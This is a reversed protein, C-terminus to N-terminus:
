FTVSSDIASVPASFGTGFGIAISQGYRVLFAVYNYLQYRIQLTGSLVEPLVRTRPSGEFLWLDDWLAAIGLDNSGGSIAGAATAATPVNGDIYVDPGFPTSGALGEAPVGGGPYVGSVNFGIDARNVLPRGSTGSAGDLSTAFWFWRRPHQLFKMSALSFRNYSVKSAMAGMVMNFGPGLPTATTWTVTQTTWNGTPLIGLVQGNAGTGTLVQVDVQKNYDKHLDEMVARDIIRGPSQEVLQLAVDEQGAITRVPASVETDTFDQSTVAGGDTTQVGTLTGTVLKPIKITDTGEPLDMQRCLDAAVRGARLAPIFEDILYLPPVFYGGQGDTRNPNVRKEFPNGNLGRQIMGGVSGTFEREARDIQEQARRERAEARKPMEAELEKAHRQLREVAGGPDKMRSAVAPLQATALDRFYSVEHANDARYTLPESTVRVEHRSKDAADTRRREVLEQEDIRQDLSRIEDMRQQHAEGFATEDALFTSREADYAKRQDDSPKEIAAFSSSREHFSGRVAEREDIATGAATLKESRKERLQELLTQEDDGELNLPVGSARLAHMKPLWTKEALAALDLVDRVRLNQARM